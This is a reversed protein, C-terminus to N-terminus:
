TTESDPNTGPQPQPSWPLRAHTACPSATLPRALTRSFSWTGSPHTRQPPLTCGWQAWSHTCCAIVGASPLRPAAGYYLFTFSTFPAGDALVQVTVADTQNTSHPPTAELVLVKSVDGWDAGPAATLATGGDFTVSYIEVGPLMDMHFVLRTGGSSPGSTPTISRGWQHEHGVAEACACSPLCRDANTLSSCAYPAPAMQPSPCQRQGADL